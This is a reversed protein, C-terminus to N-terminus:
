SSRLPRSDSASCHKEAELDHLAFRADSLVSVRAQQYKATAPRLRSEVKGNAARSIVANCYCLMISLHTNVTKVIRSRLYGRGPSMADALDSDSIRYKTELDPM